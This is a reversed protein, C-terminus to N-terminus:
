THGVSALTPPGTMVGECRCLGVIIRAGPTAVAALEKEAETDPHVMEIKM